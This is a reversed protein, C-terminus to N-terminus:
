NSRRIEAVGNTVVWARCDCKASEAREQSKSAGSMCHEAVFINSGKLLRIIM